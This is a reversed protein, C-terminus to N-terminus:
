GTGGSLLSAFENLVREYVQRKFPVIMDPLERPDAWRWSTFEPHDTDLHIDEDSGEFRMAFWKQTQGRYRGKWVKPVLEAPLDYSFWDRSEALISAKDTGIEEQLERKAAVAPDEGKDIGGQPMQWAPASADNRQAVFVQGSDNLLLIGVCRRYPLRAIREPTM